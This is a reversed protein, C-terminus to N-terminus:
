GRGASGGELCLLGGGGHAFQGSSTRALGPGGGNFRLYAQSPGQLNHFYTNLSSGSGARNLAGGARALDQRTGRTTRPTLDGGQGQHRATSSRRPVVLAM